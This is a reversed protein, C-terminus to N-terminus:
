KDDIQKLYVTQKKSTYIDINFKKDYNVGIDWKGDNNSDWELALYYRDNGKNNTHEILKQANDPLDIAIKCPIQKCEVEEVAIVTAAVDAVREDYGFVTVTLKPNEISLTEDSVFNVFVTKSNWKDCMTFLVIAVLLVFCPKILKM